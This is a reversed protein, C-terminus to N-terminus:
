GAPLRPRTRNVGALRLGPQDGWAAAVPPRHGGAQGLACRRQDERHRVDALVAQGPGGRVDGGYEADVVGGQVHARRPDVVASAAALRGAPAGEATTIGCTTVGYGAVTRSSRSAM